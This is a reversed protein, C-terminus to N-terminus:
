YFLRIVGLGRLLFIDWQLRIVYLSSNQGGQVNKPSNKDASNNGQKKDWERIYIAFSLVIVFGALTQLPVALYSLYHLYTLMYRLVAWVGCLVLLWLSIGFSSHLTQQVPCRHMSPLFAFDRENGEQRRGQQRKM